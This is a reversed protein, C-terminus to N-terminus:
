KSSEKKSFLKKRFFFFLLIVVAAIISILILHKHMHELIVTWQDGFFFGISFFTAAWIFAGSYAFLAFEWYELKSTGAVVAFIHRVGPIYYGVLLAWRGIKEFWDHVKQIKDDTVHLFRGFKHLIFLGFTRGLIYSLSIGVTSGLFASLFAPVLKLNGKYVLYGTLTLLTEDPVPLGVIGLVLLVFIGGYGYQSIWENLDNM